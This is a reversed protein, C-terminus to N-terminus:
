HVELEKKTLNHPKEIHSPLFSTHGLASKVFAYMWQLEGNINLGLLDETISHPHLYTSIVHYKGWWLVNMLALSNVFALYSVTNVTPWRRPNSIFLKQDLPFYCLVGYYCLWQRTQLSIDGPEKKRNCNCTPLAVVPFFYYYFFLLFCHRLSVQYRPSTKSHTRRAWQQVKDHEYLVEPWSICIHSSKAKVSAVSHWSQLNFIVAHQLFSPSEKWGM